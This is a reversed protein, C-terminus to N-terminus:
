LEEELSIDKVRTHLSRGEFRTACLNRCVAIVLPPVICRHNTCHSRHSGRDNCLWRAGLMDCCTHTDATSPRNLNCM